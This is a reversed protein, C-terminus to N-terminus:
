QYSQYQHKRRSRNRGLGDASMATMASGKPLLVTVLQRHGPRRGRACADARDGAAALTRRNARRGAGAGSGQIRVFKALPMSM